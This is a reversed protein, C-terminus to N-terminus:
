ILTGGNTRYLKKFPDPANVVVWDAVIPYVTNGKTFSVKYRM